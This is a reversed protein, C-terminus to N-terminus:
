LKPKEQDKISDQLPNEVQSQASQATHQQKLRKALEVFRLTDVPKVMVFDAMDMLEGMAMQANATLIVIQLNQLNPLNNQPPVTRLINLVEYGSMEPMLLDLVLLDFAQSRMKELGDEAEVVTYGTAELALRVILRSDFNDDVVIAYIPREPAADPM